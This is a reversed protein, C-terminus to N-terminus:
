DGRARTEGVAVFWGPDYCEKATNLETIYLKSVHSERELDIAERVIERSKSETIDVFVIAYHKDKTIPEDLIEKQSTDWEIGAITKITQGGGLHFYNYYNEGEKRYIGQLHSAFADNDLQEEMNPANMVFCIFCNSERSIYSQAFPQIKGSGMKFWCREMLKVMDKEVGIPDKAKLEVQEYECAKPMPKLTQGELKQAVYDMLILSDRCAEDSAPEQIRFLTSMIFTLILFFGVLGLIIVLLHHEIEGKKATYATYKTTYRTKIM